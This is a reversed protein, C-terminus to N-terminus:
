AEPQRGPYILDVVSTVKKITVDTVPTLGNADQRYLKDTLRPTIRATYFTDNLESSYWGSYLVGRFEYNTDGYSQTCDFDMGDYTVTIEGVPAIYCSHILGLNLPSGLNPSTAHHLTPHYNSAMFNIGKYGSLDRADAWFSTHRSVSISVQEIDSTYFQYWTTTKNIAETITSVVTWTNNEESWVEGLASPSLSDTYFSESHNYDADHGWWCYMTNPAYYEDVSGSATWAASTYISDGEAPVESTTFVTSPGSANLWAYMQVGDTVLSVAVGTPQWSGAGTGTHTYTNDGALPTSVTFVNMLVGGNDFQWAYMSTGPADPDAYVDDDYNRVCVAAGAGTGVTITYPSVTDSAPYRMYETSEGGTPTADIWAPGYTDYGYVRETTWNVTSGEETTQFTFGGVGTIDVHNFAYWAAFHTSGHGDDSMLHSYPILGQYSLTHYSQLKSGDAFFLDNFGYSLTKTYLDMEPDEVCAFHFVQKGDTDKYNKTADSIYHYVHKVGDVMEDLGFTTGYIANLSADYVYAPVKDHYTNQLDPNDWENELFPILYCVVAGDTLFDSNCIGLIQRTGYYDRSSDAEIIVGYAQSTWGEPVHQAAYEDFALYRFATETYLTTQSSVEGYGFHTTDWLANTIYSDINVGYVPEYVTNERATSATDFAAYVYVVEPQLVNGNPAAYGQYRIGDLIAVDDAAPTEGTYYAYGLFTECEADSYFPTSDSPYDTNVYVEDTTTYVYQPEATDSNKWRYSDKYDTFNFTDDFVFTGVSQPTEQTDKVVIKKLFPQMVYDTLMGRVYFRVTSVLPEFEDAGEVHKIENSVAVAALKKGPVIKGGGGGADVTLDVDMLTCPNSWTVVKCSASPFEVMQGTRRDIMYFLADALPQESQTYVVPFDMDIEGNISFWGYYNTQAVTTDSETSRCFGAFVNSLYSISQPLFVVDVVGTETTCASSTYLVDNAKISDRSMTDRKSFYDVPTTDFSTWTLYSLPEGEPDVPSTDTCKLFKCSGASTIYAYILAATGVQVKLFTSALTHVEDPLSKVMAASLGTSAAQGIRTAPSIYFGGQCGFGKAGPTVIRLQANTPEMAQASTSTVRTKNYDVVANLYRHTCLYDSHQVDSGPCPNKAKLEEIEKQYRRKSQAQIGSPGKVLNDRRQIFAVPAKHFINESM